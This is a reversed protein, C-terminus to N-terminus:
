KHKEDYVKGAEYGVVGGAATGLVGGGSAASGVAAGGLTGATEAKSACGSVGIVGACVVLALIRFM